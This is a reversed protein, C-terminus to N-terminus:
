KEDEVCGRSKGLETLEKHSGKMRWWVLPIGFALITVFIALYFKPTGFSDALFNYAIAGPLMGLFTSFAYIKYPLKVSGAIVSVPDYPFIPVTRLWLMKEFSGSGVLYNKLRDGWEGSFNELFWKGGGYRGMLYCFSACGFGGMLLFVIGLYPGFLVGASLNLLLTPFFLLPRITYVTIYILPAWVGFGSVWLRIDEANKPHPNYPSIYLAYIVGGLVLFYVLMKLMLHLKNKNM